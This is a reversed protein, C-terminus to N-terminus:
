REESGAYRIRMGDWNFLGDGRYELHGGLRPRVYTDEGTGLTSYYQQIEDHTKRVPNTVPILREVPIGGAHVALLTFPVGNAFPQQREAVALLLSM